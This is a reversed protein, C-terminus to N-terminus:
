KDRQFGLLSRAEEILDKDHVDPLAVSGEAKYFSSSNGSHQSRPSGDAAAPPAPPPATGNFGM